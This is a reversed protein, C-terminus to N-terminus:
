EGDSDELDLKQQSNWLKVLDKEAANALQGVLKDRLTNTQTKCCMAMLDLSEITKGDTVKAAADCMEVVLDTLRSEASMRMQQRLTQEKNAVPESVKAKGM